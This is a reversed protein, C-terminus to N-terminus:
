ECTMEFEVQAFIDGYRYLLGAIRFSLLCPKKCTHFTAREADFTGRKNEIFSAPTVEMFWKVYIVKRFSIFHGIHFIDERTSCNFIMDELIGAFTM